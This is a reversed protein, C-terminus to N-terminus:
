QRHRGVTRAEPPGTERQGHGLPKSTVAEGPPQSTPHEGNPEADIWDSPEAALDTRLDRLWYELDDGPVAADAREANLPLAPDEIATM